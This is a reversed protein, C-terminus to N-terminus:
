RTGAARERLRQLRRVTQADIDLAQADDLLANLAQYYRTSTCGFTDRIAQDKAGAHQWWQREFALMDAPTM